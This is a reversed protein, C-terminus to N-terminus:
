RRSEASLDLIGTAWVSGLGKAPDNEVYRIELLNAYKQDLMWENEFPPTDIGLTLTGSTM